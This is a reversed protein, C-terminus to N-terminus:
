LIEGAEIVPLLWYRLGTGAFKHKLAALVTESDAKSVLATIQVVRAQGLVQESASLERPHLGHAAGNSSAFVQVESALLLHDILHEQHAIPCLLTLCIDSM